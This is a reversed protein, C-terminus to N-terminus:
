PYFTVSGPDVITGQTMTGSILAYGTYEMGISLPIFDGSEVNAGTSLRAVRGYNVQFFDTASTHLRVQGVTGPLLQTGTATLVNYSNQYTEIEISASKPGMLRKTVGGADSASGSVNAANITLAWSRVDPIDALSQLTGSVIPRWTAKCGVSSYMEPLSTNTLSTATRVGLANNNASAVATSSGISSFNASWEIIGGGEIDCNVTVSDIIIGGFFEHTGNQFVGVYATGPVVIGLPSRHYGSFSGSFDSVGSLNVTMGGTNSAVGSVIGNTPNITWDRITTVANTGDVSVRGTLGSLYPM